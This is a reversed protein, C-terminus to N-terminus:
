GALLRSIRTSQLDSFERRLDDLKGRSREVDSDDCGRILALFESEAEAFRACLRMVEQRARERSSIYLQCSIARRPEFEGLALDYWCLEGRIREVVESLESLFTNVESRM